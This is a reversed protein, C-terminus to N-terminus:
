FARRMGRPRPGPMLGRPAADDEGGTADIVVEDNEKLDGEVLETRSGDSIGIRISFEQAQGDRLVWVSKRDPAPPGSKEPGRQRKTDALAAGEASEEEAPEPNLMEPIARFRLATNPILLVDDREAYVFAVSATMGPKLKLDPNEVDIVADYTVVNQLTQPANRIQRVAGNFVDHPYADVTFAATMGASLKGVDAESVNTDVQMRRLDEAITFLTPAQFSAAVTQGVDVNRSVVVGNIPSSITTYGLNVDAQKLAARAQALSGKAAKLQAKALDLNSEAADVDAQSVHSEAALAKLRNLQRQADAVQVEAKEANAEAFQLNAKAQAVAASFFQPDIRALVDGKKVESNFDVLIEQLRGSVQTGVLVTVLASLTGTATVKAKIAGREVLATEYQIQPKGSSFWDRGFYGGVGLVLVVGIIWWKM